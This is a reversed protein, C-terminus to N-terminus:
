YLKQSFIIYLFGVLKFAYSKEFIITLKFFLFLFTGCHECKDSNSIIESDRPCASKWKWM